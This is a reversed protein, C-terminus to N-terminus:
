SVGLMPGSKLEVNQGFGKFVLVIFVPLLLKMKAMM